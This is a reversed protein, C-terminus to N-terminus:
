PLDNEELLFFALLDLIDLLETLAAKEKLSLKTVHAEALFAKNIRIRRILNAIIQDIPTYATPEPIRIKALNIKERMATQTM